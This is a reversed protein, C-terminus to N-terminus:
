RTSPPIGISQLYSDVIPAWLTPHDALGHGNEPVGPVVQFRLLAGKARFAEAYGHISETSYFTDNEGYLWLSPVSTGHGFEAFSIHNFDTPCNDEAQAVWGGAFNIVGVLIRRREGLASYAVSLFGGRSTGALLVRSADAGKLTQVYTLVATLDEFSSQLGPAWSQIDCNKVESELSLGTSGGRGRRMPVVVIFGRSAFYEAQRRARLSAKPRGASSGHSFVVVPHPGDGVPEYVFAELRIVTGTAGTASAVPISVAQAAQACALASALGLCALLRKM